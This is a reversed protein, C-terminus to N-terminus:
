SQRVSYTIKCESCTCTANKKDMPKGCKYCFFEQKEWHGLGEEVFKILGIPISGGTGILNDLRRRFNETSCCAGCRPCIYQGNPCQKSDRSDITENCNQKNFCHNLYVKKKYDQCSENSCAFQTVAYAGFNTIGLPKMLRGCNRCKLHEYYKAFSQLFASLIIFHGYKTVKGEKNVYDVPINLIRMFDLLTYSEWEDAVHYRVPPRFCPKNRCWYFAIGFSNSVKNSLRCECFQEDDEEKCDFDVCNDLGNFKLVFPRAFAFLEPEYSKGFYFAIGQAERVEEYESPSYTIKILEQIRQYYKNNYQTPQDYVDLMKNSVFMKLKKNIPCIWGNFYQNIKRNTYDHPLPVIHWRGACDTMLQRIGIWEAHDERGNLLQLMINNDLTASPNVERLKLYTFVIELPFCIPNGHNSVLQYLKEATFSVKGQAILQFFKKVSRIQVYPPLYTFIAQLAGMSTTSRFHVAWLVASIWPNRMANKLANLETGFQEEWKRKEHYASGDEPKNFALLEALLVALSVGEETLELTELRKSILPFLNVRSQKLIRQYTDNKLTPAHYWREKTSVTSEITISNIVEEVVREPLSYILHAEFLIILDDFGKSDIYNEWIDKQKGYFVFMRLRGLFSCNRGVVSESFYAEDEKKTGYLSQSLPINWILAFARDIILRAFLSNDETVTSYSNFFTDKTLVIYEDIESINWSAVILQSISLAEKTPIWYNRYQAVWMLVDLTRTEKLIPVLADKICLEENERYIETLSDYSSFFDKVGSLNNLKERLTETLEETILPLLKKKYQALFSADINNAELKSINDVAYACLKDEIHKQLVIAMAEQIIGEHAKIWDDSLQSLFRFFDNRKSANTPNETIQTFHYDRLRNQKSCDVSDNIEAEYNKSSLNLYRKLKEILKAKDTNRDNSYNDSKNEPFIDGELIDNRKAIERLIDKIILDVQADIWKQIKEVYENPMIHCLEQLEEMDTYQCNDSLKGELWKQTLDSDNFYRILSPYLRLVSLREEDNFVSLLEEWIDKEALYFDRDFKYKEYFKTREVYHNVLFQFHMETTEPSREPDNTILGRVRDAVLKFPKKIRCYLNTARGDKDRIIEHNGYYLMALAQDEETREIRRVNVGKTRSKGQCAVQFVVIEGDRKAKEDIFSDSNVYFDQYYEDSTMGCNNSAIFGFDKKADYFKIEGIFFKDKGYLLKIM